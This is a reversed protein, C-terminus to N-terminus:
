VQASPRLNLSSGYLGAAVHGIKCPCLAREELLNEGGRVSVPVVAEVTGAVVTQIRSLERRRPASGMQTSPREDVAILHQRARLHVVEVGHEVAPRNADAADARDERMRRM